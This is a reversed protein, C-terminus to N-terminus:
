LLLIKVWQNPHSYKRGQVFSLGWGREKAMFVEEGSCFTDM